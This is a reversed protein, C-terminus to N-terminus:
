TPTAPPLPPPSLTLSHPQLANNSRPTLTPHSHPPLPPAPLCFSPLSPPYLVYPSPCETAVPGVCPMATHPSNSTPPQHMHRTATSTYSHCGPRGCVEAHCVAALVRPGCAFGVAIDHPMFHHQLVNSLLDHVAGLTCASGRTWMGPGRQSSLRHPSGM